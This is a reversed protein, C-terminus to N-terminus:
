KSITSTQRLVRCKKSGSFHAVDGNDNLAVCHFCKPTDSISCERINHTDSGCRWCCKSNDKGMCESRHNNFGHCKYCRTQKDKIQVPCILWGVQIKGKRLLKQAEPEPILVNATQSGDSWAHLNRVIIKETALGTGLTNQIAEIVEEKSTIEDLKSIQILKCNGLQRVCSDEGLVENIENAIAETNHNDKHKVTM